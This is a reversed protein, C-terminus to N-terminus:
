GAGKVPARLICSERHLPPDWNYVNPTHRDERLPSVVVKVKTDLPTNIDM